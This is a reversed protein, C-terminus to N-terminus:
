SCDLRVRWILGGRQTQHQTQILDSALNKKTQMFSKAVVQTETGAEKSRWRHRIRVVFVVRLDPRVPCLPTLTALLFPLFSSLALCTVTLQSLLVCSTLPSYPLFLVPLMTLQSLVRKNHQTTADRANFGCQVMWGRQCERGEAVRGVM